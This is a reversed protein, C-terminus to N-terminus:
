GNLCLINRVYCLKEVRVEIRPWAYSSPCSQHFRWPAGISRIAAEPQHVTGSADDACIDADVGLPDDVARGVAKAIKACEAHEGFKSCM